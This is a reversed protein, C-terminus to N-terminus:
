NILEFYFLTQPLVEQKSFSNVYSNCEGNGTLKTTLTIIKKVESNLDDREKTLTQHSGELVSLQRQIDLRDQELGDKESNLVTL